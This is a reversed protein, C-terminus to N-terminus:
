FTMFFDYTGRADAAAADSECAYDLTDTTDCVDSEDTGRTEDTGCDVAATEKRQGQGREADDIAVDAGARQVRHALTEEARVRHRRRVVVDEAHQRQDDVRQQQDHRQFVDREHQAGVVLAFAANEREGRQDGFWPPSLVLLPDRSATPLGTSIASPMKPVASSYPSPMIVGAIETSPATSPRSTAVGNKVGYTTGIM